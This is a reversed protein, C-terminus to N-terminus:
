ENGILILQKPTLLWKLTGCLGYVPRDIEVKCLSGKKMQISGFENGSTLVAILASMHPEHGVLLIRDKSYYKEALEKLLKKPDMGCQLNESYKLGKKIGLGEAVIEATEKTRVYPSALVHEIGLKLAKMGKVSLRLEDIGEKTLRRESDNKHKGAIKDEAIGHRLLYLIM